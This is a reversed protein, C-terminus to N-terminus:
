SHTLINKGKNGGVNLKQAILEGLVKGKLVFTKM